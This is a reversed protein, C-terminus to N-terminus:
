FIRGNNRRPKNPKLKYYQRKQDKLVKKCMKFWENNYGLNVLEREREIEEKQWQIDEILRQVANEKYYKKYDFSM